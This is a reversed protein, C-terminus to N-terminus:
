LKIFIGIQIFRAQKGPFLRQVYGCNQRTVSFSGPALDDVSSVAQARMTFSAAFPIRAM